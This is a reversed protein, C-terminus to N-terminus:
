SVPTLQFLTKVRKFAIIVPQCLFDVASIVTLLFPAMHTVEGFTTMQRWICCYVPLLTIMFLSPTVQGRLKPTRCALYQRILLLLVLAWEWQM